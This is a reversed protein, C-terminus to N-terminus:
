EADWVVVRGSDGGAALRLGDPAYTACYVRGIDWRYNARERGTATDWLRVTQDWSGTMLTRGDPSFAVAAVQGKHGKVELLERKKSVDYVKATWDVAVAMLRGDASLAVAPCTGKQPFDIPRPTTIDWLRLKRHGTVWAVHKNRPCAAVARVGNPEHISNPSKRDASIDWVELAGVAAPNVRDGIGLVVTRDTVVALSTVPQVSQPGFPQWGDGGPRWASWGFEGGAIVGAGNPLFDIAHVPLDKLGRERLSCAAGDAGRLFLTGDKAGTALESGDPSFAVAYVVSKLNIAASQSRHDEYLLM